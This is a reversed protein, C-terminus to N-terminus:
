LISLCKQITSAPCFDGETSLTSWPKVEKRKKKKETEKRGEKKKGEKRGERRGKLLSWMSGLASSSSMVRLDLGSNLDLTPHKISQKLVININPYRSPETPKLM